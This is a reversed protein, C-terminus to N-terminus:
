NTERAARWRRAMSELRPIAGTAAIDENLKRAASPDLPSLPPIVEALTRDALLTALVEKVNVVIQNRSLISRVAAATTWETADPAILAGNSGRLLPATINLSASISGAFGDKTANALTAENSPFVEFGTLTAALERDMDLDGGSDKMGCIRDGFASRLRKVSQVSFAVGSMRPYHYLYLKTTPRKVGALLHDFFRVLDDDTLNKYYYPPMVLLRVFGLQEALTSLTKTDALTSTGIGVFFRSLDLDSAAVARMLQGREVASLSFAEGTTGLLNIGDCGSQLLTKCLALTRAADPVFDATVITPIATIALPRTGAKAAGSLMSGVVMGALSQLMARRTIYSDM